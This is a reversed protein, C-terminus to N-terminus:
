GAALGAASPSLGTIQGTQTLTGDSSLRFASLVHTGEGLNYLFRGNGFFRAFFNTSGIAVDFPSSGPGVVGSVGSPDLLTLHGHDVAYGSITGAATNAVYAYRGTETTVVWCPAGQGNTSVPGDIVSLAGDNSLAYSTVAASAADSVILDGRPDFAFGYPGDGASATTQAPGALGGPGLTFTDITGSAKETVVLVRGNPSFGIQEPSAAGSGLPQTSGPLPTLGGHADITFGSIMLSGANLVYLLRGHSTLSIPTAGGSPVVNQLQLSGDPRVGFTSITNDGANVAFLQSGFGPLLGHRLLLAGQSGLPAGTGLGGTAFTDVAVLGGDPRTAFAAIENGAAANTETYVLGGALRATGRAGAGSAAVALVAAAALISLLIRKM